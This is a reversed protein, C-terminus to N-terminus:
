CEVEAIFEDFYLNVISLSDIQRCFQELVRSKVLQSMQVLEERDRCWSNTPIVTSHDRPYAIGPLVIKDLQRFM